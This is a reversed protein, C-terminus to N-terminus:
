LVCVAAAAVYWRRERWLFLRPGTWCAKAGCSSCWCNDRPSHFVGHFVNLLHLLSLVVHHDAARILSVGFFFFPIAGAHCVGFSPIARVFSQVIPYPEATSASASTTSSATRSTSFVVSLPVLNQINLSECSTTLACLVCSCALRVIMFINWSARFRPILCILNDM